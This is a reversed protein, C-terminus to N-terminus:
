AVAKLRPGANDDSDAKADRLRFRNVQSRLEDALEGLSEAGNAVQEVQAAVEQSSASVEETAASNEEAVAAIQEASEGAARGVAKLDDILTLMDDSAAKVVTSRTAIESIQGSASEVASLIQSLADATEAAALTGTEMESSGATIADVTAHVGGQVGDILSAIEQTAKSVREALQRVEDAVVAFGRGQEGARAAEIAANLALLNTQAAIDEIVAVIKGIEASQEGLSAVEKSAVDMADRIRDIGDVTNQMKESGTRAATSADQARASAEAAGQAVQDAANAVDTRAKEELTEAALNLKEVAVSLDQVAEAQQSTGEAVQATTKATETTAAASQTAAESLEDKATVLRMVAETTRGLVESLTEIMGKFSRGLADNESRQNIEVTLDGEAIRAAATAAEQLYGQMEVFATGLVDNNSRPNTQVSVDGRSVATAVQAMERLYTQMSAYSKAMDGIEDNTNVEVTADLEGVAIRSLGNSVQSVGSSISRALYVGVALGIAVVAVIIVLTLNRATSYTSAASEASHAADAEFLDRLEVIETIALAFAAEGEGGLIAEGAEFSHHEAELAQIEAVEVLYLAWNHQIEEALVLSEGSLHGNTVLEEILLTVDAAELAAAELLHTAETSLEASLAPHESSAIESMQTALVGKSLEIQVTLAEEEITSVAVISELDEEYIRQAGADISALRSISVYGLVAVLLIVVGFGGLLKAAIPIRKSALM